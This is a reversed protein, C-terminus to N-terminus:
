KEDFEATEIKDGGVKVPKTPDMPQLIAPRGMSDVIAAQVNEQKGGDKVEFVHGSTVVWAKPHDKLWQEWLAKPVRNIYPEPNRQAPVLIKRKRMERNHEHTGRLVFREYKDTRMVRPILGGREGRVTTQLGVELVYGSPLRCGITVFEM